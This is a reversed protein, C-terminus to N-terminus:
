TIEIQQSFAFNLDEKVLELIEKKTEDNLERGDLLDSFGYDKDKLKIKLEIDM